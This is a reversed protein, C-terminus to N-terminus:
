KNYVSQKGTWPVFLIGKSFASSPNTAEQLNYVPEMPEGFFGTSCQKCTPPCSLKRALFNGYGTDNLSGASESGGVVCYSRNPYETGSGVSKISTQSCNQCLYDTNKKQRPMKAFKSNKKGEIYPPAQQRRDRQTTSIIDNYAPNPKWAGQSLSKSCQTNKRWGTLSSNDNSCFAPCETPNIKRKVRCKDESDGPLTVCGLLKSETDYTEEGLVCHGYFDSKDDDNIYCGDCVDRPKVTDNNDLEWDNCPTWADSKFEGGDGLYPCRCTYSWDQLGVRPQPPTLVCGSGALDEGSNASSFVAIDGEPLNCPPTFKGKSKTYPVGLSKPLKGVGGWGGTNSPASELYKPGVKLDSNFWSGTFPDEKSSGGGWMYDPNKWYKTGLCGRLCTPNGQRSTTGDGSGRNFVCGKNLRDCFDPSDTLFKDSKALDAESLTICGPQSKPVCYNPGARDIVQNGIFQCEPNSQCMQRAVTTDSVFDVNPCAGRNNKVPCYVPCKGGYEYDKKEDRSLFHKDGNPFCIYDPIEGIKLRQPICKDKKITIM